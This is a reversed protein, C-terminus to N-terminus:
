YLWDTFGFNKGPNSPVPARFKTGYRKNVLHPQWTDDGSANSGNRQLWAYARKMASSSVSYAPYGARHLLEAQLLAGQLGEWSYSVGSSGIKPFSGGRRLDDPLVGDINRGSKTAGAPNIGVPASPRYQWSTDGYDFGAYQSRDGAWGQFVKWARALDATDGIYLDIAVRAAGAHTGWNNPRDEHTSILTRGDLRETRVSKLWSVFGTTRYGVLDAALVYAPLERALALTRGGNETNPLRNLVSVVQSKYTANGTRAHVLAKALVIVNADSDQNSLDAGSASKAAWNRVNTWESGSTPRAMLAAKPILIHDRPIAAAAPVATTTLAIALAASLLLFRRRM